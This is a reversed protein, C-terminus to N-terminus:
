DIDIITFVNYYINEDHEDYLHDFLEYTISFIWDLHDFLEYLTKYSMYCYASCLNDCIDCTYINTHHVVDYHFDRILKFNFILKPCLVCRLRHDHSSM